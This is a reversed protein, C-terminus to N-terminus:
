PFAIKFGFNATPAATASGQPPIKVEYGINGTLFLPTRGIQYEAALGAKVGLEPRALPAAPDIPAEGTVGLGFETLGKIRDKVHELEYSLAKLSIKLAVQQPSGLAPGQPAGIEVEAKLEEGFVLPQGFVMVTGLQQIPIAVEINTTIKKDAVSGEISPEIGFKEEVKTAPTGNNSPSKDPLGTAAPVIPTQKEAESLPITQTSPTIEIESKRGKEEEAPKSQRQLQPGGLRSSQFVNAGNMAQAAAVDAEHEHIDHTPGIALERPAPDAIARQQAVHTLEHALLQRGANTGPRYQEAGFVVNRGVTYAMANVAHASKAAKTDAHVRVHSFDHGFRPEMFARTETNLSQGPSRLVEHVILPAESPHSNFSLLQTAARRLLSGGVPTFAPRSAVKQPLRLRTKM